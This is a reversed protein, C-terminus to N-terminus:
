VWEFNERGAGLEFHYKVIGLDTKSCPGILAKARAGRDGVQEIFFRQQNIATPALMAADMGREFWQPTAPTIPALKTVPKSRHPVGQTEGYGLAVVDHLVHGEAPKVPIANKEFTMACWCTNLGLYQALLVLREGHYGVQEDAGKPGYLVIFNRCGSFSGYRPRDARFVDPDDLVLRFDLGTERGIADIEAQLAAAKEPEVPRCTYRRVSHRARLVDWLAEHPIATNEM